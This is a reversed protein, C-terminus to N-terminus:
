MHVVLTDIEHVYYQIYRTDRWLDQHSVNQQPSLLACTALM